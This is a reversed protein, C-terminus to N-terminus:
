CNMVFRGRWWALCGWKVACSGSQLRTLDQSYHVEGCLLSEQEKTKGNSLDQQVVCAVSQSRCLSGMSANEIVTCRSGKNSSRCCLNEHGLGAENDRSIFCFTVAKAIRDSFCLTLIGSQSEMGLVFTLTQQLWTHDHQFGGSLWMKSDVNNEKKEAIQWGCLLAFFDFWRWIHLHWFQVTFLLVSQLGLPKSEATCSVQEYMILQGEALWALHRWPGSQPKSCCM